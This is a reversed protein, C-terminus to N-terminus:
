ATAFFSMQLLWCLAALSVCLRLLVAGTVGGDGGGGWGVACGAPLWLCLHHRSVAATGGGGIVVAMFGSLVPVNTLALLLAALWLCLQRQSVVRTGGGKRHVWGWVCGAAVADYSCWWPLLRRHSADCGYPRLLM